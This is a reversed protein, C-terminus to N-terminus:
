DKIGCIGPVKDEGTAENQRKWMDLGRSETNGEQCQPKVRYNWTIIANVKNREIKECM